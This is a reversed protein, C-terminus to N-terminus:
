HSVPLGSSYFSTGDNVLDLGDGTTLTITGTNAGDLNPGAAAPSVTMTAGQAKLHVKFGQSFVTSVGGTNAPLTVTCTSTCYYWVCNDTLSNLTFSATKQIPSLLSMPCAAGSQADAHRPVAMFAAVMVIAALAAAAVLNLRRM